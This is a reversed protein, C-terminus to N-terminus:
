SGYIKQKGGRLREIWSMRGKVQSVLKQQDMLHRSAGANPDSELM